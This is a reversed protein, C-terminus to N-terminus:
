DKAAHPPPPDADNFLSHQFPKSGPTMAVAAASVVDRYVSDRFVIREDDLIDDVLGALHDDRIADRDFGLKELLESRPLGAVGAEALLMLARSLISSNDAAVTQPASEQSSAQASYLYAGRKGFRVIRKREVLRALASRISGSKAGPSAALIRTVISTEPIPGGSAGVMEVTVSEVVQALGIMRQPAPGLVADLDLGEIRELDADIKELESTLRAVEEQISDRRRELDAKGDRIRSLHENLDFTENDDHM